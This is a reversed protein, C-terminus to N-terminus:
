NFLFPGLAHKADEITVHGLEIQGDLSLLAFEISGDEFKSIKLIANDKRKKYAPKYGTQATALKFLIM